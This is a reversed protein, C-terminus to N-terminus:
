WIRQVGYRDLAADASLIPFNLAQSQAVLMRDFPDKHHLSLQGARLAHDTSIALRRFGKQLLLGHFDALVAEARLKRSNTKIALEWAVAASVYIRNAPEALLEGAAASIRNDATLWWLLVHTDLLLNM